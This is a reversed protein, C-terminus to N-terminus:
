VHVATARKVNANALSEQKVIEQATSDKLNTVLSSTIVDNNFINDIDILIPTILGCPTQKTLKWITSRIRRCDDHALQLNQECRRRRRSEVRCNLRMPTPPAYQSLLRRIERASQTVVWSRPDYKEAILVMVLVM